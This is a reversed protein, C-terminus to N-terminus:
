RHPRDPADRVSGGRAQERAERAERRKKRFAHKAQKCAASCFMTRADTAFFVADCADCVVPHLSSARYVRRGPAATGRM